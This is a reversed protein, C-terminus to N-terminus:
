RKTAVVPDSLANPRPGAGVPEDLVVVEGPAGMSLLRAREELLDRDLSETRLGNVRLELAQRTAEAATVEKRAAEVMADLRRFSLLGRDGQVLHYGFYGALLLALVPGASLRLQRKLDFGRGEGRVMTPLM